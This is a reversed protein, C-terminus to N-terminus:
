GCEGREATFQSGAPILESIERWVLELGVGSRLEVQEGRRMRVLRHVRPPRKAGTSRMSM